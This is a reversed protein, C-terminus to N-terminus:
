VEVTDRVMGLGKAYQLFKEMKQRKAAIGDELPIAELDSNGQFSAAIRPLFGMEALAEIAGLLDIVEAELRQNNTLDEGGPKREQAGFILIKCVRQAVEGCEEALKLLYYQERTLAQNDLDRQM